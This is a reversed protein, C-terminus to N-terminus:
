QQGWFIFHNKTDYWFTSYELTAITINSKERHIAGWKTIAWVVKGYCFTVEIIANKKYM